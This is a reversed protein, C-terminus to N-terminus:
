FNLKEGPQLQQVLIAGNVEKLERMFVSVANPSSEFRMPIATRPRVLAVAEAADAASLTFEEDLAVLMLDVRMKQGIEEFADTFKTDGTHYLTPGDAMEIVFGYAGAYSANNRMKANDKQEGAGLHRAPVLTVRLEGDLLDIADWVRLSRKLFNSKAFMKNHILSREVRDAVVLRAGTKKVIESADGLANAHGHSVLLYDVKGLAKFDDVAKPNHPNLIWPDILVVGGSPTTIKFASHGLWMLEFRAEAHVGWPLLALLLLCNKIFRAM